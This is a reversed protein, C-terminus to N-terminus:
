LTVRLAARSAARLAACLLPRSIPRAPPPALLSVCLLTHVHARVQLDADELHLKDRYLARIEFLPRLESVFQVLTWLWYLSFLIYYYFVRFFSSHQLLDPRFFHIDRCTQESQCTHLIGDWNLMEVLFVFLITYALTLLSIIRSALICRLGRERYYSYARGFFTDM